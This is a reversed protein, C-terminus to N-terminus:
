GATGDKLGTGVASVTDRTGELGGGCGGVGVRPTERPNPNGDECGM